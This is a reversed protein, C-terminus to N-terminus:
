FYVVWACFVKSSSVLPVYEMYYVVCLEVYVLVDLNTMLGNVFEYRKKTQAVVKKQAPSAATSAVPDDSTPANNM